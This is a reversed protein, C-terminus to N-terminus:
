NLVRILFEQYGRLDAKSIDEEFKATSVNGDFLEEVIKKSKKDVYLKLSKGDKLDASGNKYVLKSVDTKVGFKSFYSDRFQDSKFSVVGNARGDSGFNINLTFVQSNIKYRKLEHKEFFMELRDNVATQIVTEGDFYGDPVNFKFILDKLKLDTQGSLYGNKLTFYGSGGALDARVIGTYNENNFTILGNRVGLGKNNINVENVSSYLVGGFVLILFLLLKKM